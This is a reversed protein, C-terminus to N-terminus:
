IAGSKRASRRGVSKIGEGGESGPSKKKERQDELYQQLKVPLGRKKASRSRLRTLVKAALAQKLPFGWKRKYEKPSLQHTRLHNATIQNFEAGCELCTVKDEQISRRPDTRQSSDVKVLSSESAGGTVPVPKGDEEARRMGNSLACQVSEPPNYQNLIPNQIKMESNAPCALHEKSPDHPCDTSGM